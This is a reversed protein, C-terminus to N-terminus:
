FSWAQFRGQGQIWWSESSLLGLKKVGGDVCTLTTKVGSIEKKKGSIEVASFAPHLHSFRHAIFVAFFIIFFLIVLDVTIWSTSM